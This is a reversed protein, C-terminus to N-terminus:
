PTYWWDGATLEERSFIKKVEKKDFARILTLDKDTPIEIVSYLTYAAPPSKEFSTEADGTRPFHFLRSGPHIHELFAKDVPKLAPKHDPEPTPAPKAM